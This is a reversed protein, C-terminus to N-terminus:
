PAIEVLKMMVCVVRNLAAIECDPSKRFTVLQPWSMYTRSHSYSSPNGHSFRARHSFSEDNLEAAFILVGVSIVPPSSSQFTGMMLESCIYSVRFRRPTGVSSTM